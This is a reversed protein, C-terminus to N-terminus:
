KGHEKKAVLYNNYFKEVGSLRNNDLEILKNFKFMQMLQKGDETTRIDKMAKLYLKEKHSSMNKSFLSFMPAFIRDTKYVVVLSQGLQPNLEQMLEWGFENVIAVDCKKFFLDLVPKSEKKTSIYKLNLNHEMAYKQIIIKSIKSYKHYHVISNKKIQIGKRKLIVYSLFPKGDKETRVWGKDFYKKYFKSHIVYSYSSIILADIKEGNQTDKKLHNFDTYFLMRSNVGSVNKTMQKLWLNLALKAGDYSVKDIDAGYFANEILIKKEAQLSTMGILLLAFVVLLRKM